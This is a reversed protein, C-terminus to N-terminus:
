GSEKEQQFEMADKPEKIVIIEVIKKAKTTKM